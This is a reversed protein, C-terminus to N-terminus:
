RNKMILYYYYDESRASKFLLKGNFQDMEWNRIKEWKIKGIESIILLYKSKSYSYEDDVDVGMKTLLFRYEYGPSSLHTKNILFVNVSKDPIELNYFVSKFKKELNKINRGEGYFRLPFFVANLIMLVLIVTGLNKTKGFFFILTLQLFLLIPFFYHPITRGFVLYFVSLSLASVFWATERYKSLGFAAATLVIIGIITIPMWQFSIRNLEVIQGLQGIKSLYSSTMFESNQPGFFTKALIFNHKIEFIAVPLFALLFSFIYSSVFFIRQKITKEASVALRFFPILVVLLSVPHYNVIVGAVFGLVFVNPSKMQKPYFFWALYVILFSLYTFANGPSRGSLILYPTTLLWIVSLFSYIMKCNRRMIFFLWVMSFTFLLANAIIVARYNHFLFILPAFLYFHYPALRLGSFSFQPGVLTLKGEAIKEMMWLDRGFDSDYNYSPPMRYSVDAKWLFVFLSLIVILVAFFLNGRTKKTFDTSAPKKKM